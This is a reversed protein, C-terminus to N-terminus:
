ERLRILGEQACSAVLRGDRSFIKGRNFGRAHGAWPSDCVYLLWDDARFDEHLWVTHDLSATQLKHTMWNVGHALTATGLLSMDSAYALIARHMAPDDGIPAVVRFWSNQAPAQKVPDLWSRPSVPRIDVMRPRMFNTRFREPIRDIMALRLERDSTLEEPPTVEPMTDQHALGGEPRQLSCTMSLIPQGHQTAIVRRTAFSKGDFDRVVRYIIPHDEAGPRMFYAHLSHAIKPEDTSRQAAQLAQGIVQGGFVRGFGDNGLKGRYLDTDVEEIDLLDVLDRALQEPTPSVEM